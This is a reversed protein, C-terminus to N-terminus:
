KRDRTRSPLPCWSRLCRCDSLGLPAGPASPRFRVSACRVRLRLFAGLGRSGRSSFCSVAIEFHRFLFPRPPLTRPSRLPRFRDPRHHPGVASESENSTVTATQPPFAEFPLLRMAPFETERRFSVRHVGPDAAAQFVTAPDLLFLGDPHHSVVRAARPHSAAKGDRLFCSASRFRAAPHSRSDSESAQVISPRDKSLGL